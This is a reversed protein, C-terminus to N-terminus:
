THIYQIYTYIYLSLSLNLYLHISCVCSMAVGFCDALEGWKGLILHKMKENSVDGEADVTMAHHEVHHPQEAAACVLLALSLRALTM